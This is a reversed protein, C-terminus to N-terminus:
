PRETIMLKLKGSISLKQSEKQGFIIFHDGKKIEVQNITGQGELVSYLQYKNTMYAYSKKIDVRRFHFYDNKIYDYLDYDENKEIQTHNLENKAPIDVVKVAQELHLERKTGDKQVRDYDYIRYTTDSSQQVEYIFAGSGIAHVKKAPISIFDDKKILKYSWLTLDNNKIRQIFETKSKAFHGDIIKADEKADIVYWCETKGYDLEHKLAYEDDPHVQISLDDNADLIKVLIPFFESPDDNFLANKHEYYLADLMLGKYPGSIIKSPGNKHASIAWCEGIHDSDIQYGFVDNLKKGGWLRKKFVPELFALNM